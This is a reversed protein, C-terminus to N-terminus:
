ALRRLYSKFLTKKNRRSLQIVSQDSLIVTDTSFSRIHNINILTDRNAYELKGNAAAHLAKLSDKATIIEYNECHLNIKKGEKTIYLILKLRLESDGTHTHILLTGSLYDQHIRVFQNYLDEETDTKLFYGIVNYAFAARISELSVTYYLLYNTKSSLKRSQEIGNEGNLLIDLIVIDFTNDSQLLSDTNDFCFVSSNPFFFLLLQKLYSHYIVEDDIIAFSYSQTSITKMNQNYLHIAKIFLHNLFARIM